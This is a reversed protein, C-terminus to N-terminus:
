MQYIILIYRIIEKIKMKLSKKENPDKQILSPHFRLCAFAAGPEQQDQWIQKQESYYDMKIMMITFSIALQFLIGILLIWLPQLIPTDVCNLSSCECTVPLCLLIIVANLGFSPLFM